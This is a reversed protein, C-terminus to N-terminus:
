GNGMAWQGNGMAWQGNGVLLDSRLYKRIEYNTIIDVLIAQEEPPLAEVIAIAKDFTSTKEMKKIPLLELIMM